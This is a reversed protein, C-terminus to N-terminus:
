IDRRKNEQDPQFLKSDSNALFQCFVDINKNTKLTIRIKGRTCGDFRPESRDILLVTRSSKASVFIALWSETLLTSSSM